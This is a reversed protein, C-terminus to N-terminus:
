VWIFCPQVGHVFVFYRFILAEPVYLVWQAKFFELSNRTGVQSSNGMELGNASGSDGYSRQEAVM